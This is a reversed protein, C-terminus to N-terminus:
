EKKDLRPFIFIPIKLLRVINFRSTRKIGLVYYLKRVRKMIPYKQFMIEMLESYVQDAKKQRSEDVNKIRFYFLLEPVRYIRKRDKVFNMWFAYDEIGRKFDLDYGGYKEWDSKRFMSTNVIKNGLCMNIFSPKQRDDFENKLGFKASSPAVVGYKSGVIKNYLTEVCKQTMRDDADLPLIYEGVAMKIGRNKTFVTGQNEQSLVTIRSDKAAYKKAINLTDDSSGDNIIILEWDKFTQELVSNIALDIYKGDNFAPMIISVKPM